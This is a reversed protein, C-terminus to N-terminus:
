SALGLSQRGFPKLGAQAANFRGIHWCPRLEGAQPHMEVADFGPPGVGLNDGEGEADHATAGVGELVCRSFM